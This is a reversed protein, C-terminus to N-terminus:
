PKGGVPRVRTDWTGAADLILWVEDSGSRAVLDRTGVGGQGPVVWRVRVKVETASPEGGLAPAVAAMFQEARRVTLAPVDGRGASARLKKVWAEVVPVLQATGAPDDGSAAMHTCFASVEPQNGLPGYADKQTLLRFEPRRAETGLVRWADPAPLPFRITAPPPPPLFASEVVSGGPEDRVVSRVEVGGPAEGPGVRGGSVRVEVWAARDPPPSLPNVQQRAQISLILMLLLSAGLASSLLDIYSVTSSDDGSM